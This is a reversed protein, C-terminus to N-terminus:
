TPASAQSEKVEVVDEPRQVFSLAVWDINEDLAAVLDARDKDTMASTPLTPTPCASARGTPSKARSRSWANPTVTRLAIQVRLQVKGDDILLRHGPQM